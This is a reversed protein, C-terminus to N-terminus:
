ASNEGKQFSSTKETSSGGSREQGLHPATQSAPGAEM